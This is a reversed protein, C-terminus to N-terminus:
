WPRTSPAPRSQVAQVAQWCGAGISNDKSDKDSSTASHRLNRSHKSQQNAPAPEACKTPGAVNADWVPQGRYAGEKEDTQWALNPQGLLAKMSNGSEYQRFLKSQRICSRTGIFNGLNQSSASPDHQHAGM